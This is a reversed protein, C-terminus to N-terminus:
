KQLEGLRQEYGDLTNSSPTVQTYNNDLKQAAAAEAEADSPPATLDKKAREIALKYYEIAKNKDGLQASAEGILMASRDSPASSELTMGVDLAEDYKSANLLLLGKSFLLSEVVVGDNSSKIYNDYAVVAGKVDGGNNYITSAVSTVEAVKQQQAENLAAAIPKTNLAGTESTGNGTLWTVLTSRFSFLVLGIVAVGIIIALITIIRRRNIIFPM